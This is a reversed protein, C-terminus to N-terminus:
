LWSALVLREDVLWPDLDADELSRGVLSDGPEVFLEEEDEVEVLVVVVLLRREQVEEAATVAPEDVAEYLLGVLEPFVVGFRDVGVRSM